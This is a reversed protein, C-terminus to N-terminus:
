KHILISNLGNIRFLPQYFWFLQNSVTEVYKKHSFTAKITQGDWSGFPTSAELDEECLHSTNKSNFPCSSPVSYNRTRRLRIPGRHQHNSVIRMSAKLTSLPSSGSPHSFCVMTQQVRCRIQNRVSSIIPASLSPFSGSRQSSNVPKKFLFFGDPPAKAEQCNKSIPSGLLM